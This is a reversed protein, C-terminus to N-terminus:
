LRPLLEATGDLHSAAVRNAAGLREALPLHPLLLFAATFVDGTGAQNEAAGVPHAPAEASEGSRTFAASGASGRHVIVAGAGDALVSAVAAAPDESGTIRCLERENGHVMSVNKLLARVSECRRSIGAVDGGSWQPDWNLDLSTEMGAARARRLLKENGDALMRPAFWVDARYLHRCGARALAEVDVDQEELLASAPLCSIFHRQQNDWTLALSRGTPAVKEVLHTAAGFQELHRRLKRGLEDRGVCGCFHVNGGLRAAALATNAGGGGLAEWIAAVATEGDHLVDTSARIPATRIDVNISGVIALPTKSLICNPLELVM